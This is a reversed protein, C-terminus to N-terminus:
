TFYIQMDEIILGRAIFRVSAFQRSSECSSPSVTLNLVGFMPWTVCVKVLCGFSHRKVASHLSDVSTQHEDLDELVFSCTVWTWHLVLYNELKMLVASMGM